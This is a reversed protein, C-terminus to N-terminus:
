SRRKLRDRARKAAPDLTRVRVRVFSTRGVNPVEIAGSVRRPARRLRVRLHGKHRRYTRGDVRFVAFGFDPIRSLSVTLTRRTYSASRVKPPRVGIETLADGSVPAPLPPLAPQSATPTAQPRVLWGLGSAEFARAANVRGGTAARMLLQEATSADIDPRYARLAALLATVIPTSYSTGSGIALGGGPWSLEVGCGLASIDLESGRSSLSCMLGSRETAGVAVVAAFRAPYGVAGGTNGAGAVVNIDRELRLGAIRNELRAIEEGTEQDLGSLSINVVKAGVARCKDLATIVAAVTTGGGSGAFVRVSVIRAQPWIGVSDRGDAQSAIVGAVLTGHKALGSGGVDDTTGGYVSHREIVAPAADTTLDVGTDVVCVKAPVPPPPAYALFEANADVAQPTPGEMASASPAGAVSAVVALAAVLIHM